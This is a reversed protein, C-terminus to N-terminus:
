IRIYRMSAQYDYMTKPVNKETLLRIPFNKMCEEISKELFVEQFLERSDIYCMFIQQYDSQIFEEKKNSIREPIKGLMFEEYKLNNYFNRDLYRLCEVNWTANYRNRENELLNYITEIIIIATYPFKGKHPRLLYRIQKLTIEIKFYDFCKQCILKPTQKMNVKKTEKGAVVCKRTINYKFGICEIMKELKKNYPMHESTKYRLFYDKM